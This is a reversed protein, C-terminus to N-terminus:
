FGAWNVFNLLLRELYKDLLKYTERLISEVHLQVGYHQGDRLRIESPNPCVLLLDECTSHKM